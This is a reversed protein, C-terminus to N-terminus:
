YLERQDDVHAGYDGPNGTLLGQAQGPVSFFGSQGPPLVTEAKLVLDAPSVQRSSASSGDGLNCATLLVAVLPLGLQATILRFKM